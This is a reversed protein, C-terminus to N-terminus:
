EKRLTELVEKFIDPMDAHVIVEEHTSPHEFCLEYAHLLQGGTPLTKRYAYTEDGAVPHKIYQMHVRIQHTRGTELTCEVFTYEDFRELVKFHTVAPKSNQECVCMKKRDKVDRGIPADITGYDHEMVGHVLAYYKRSVKKQQLQESLNIHAQDNKAIILLGSTDKDIRHVIGPRLAGNIGSLDHCHYLIANVLTGQYNGVVPHVVMGRPKNVVLVDKDEYVIDLPIDEAEITLEKNEPLEISIM